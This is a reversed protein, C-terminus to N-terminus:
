SYGAAYRGYIPHRRAALNILLSLLQGYSLGAAQAALVLSSDLSLDPNHNVDVVYFVGERFRVDLRVYDRCNAARYTSCALAQLQQYEQATLRAPVIMKIQKALPNDKEFKSEYTRIRALTDEIASFDIEAIPLLHLTENGILTVTLERGRIFEEVLAPQDFRRTVSEIQETLREPTSVVAQRDIGLSGHERVPKVIAPFCHWGNTSLTDYIAWSPLPIGQKTLLVKIDRKDATLANSDAGTFTYGHQELTAAVLAESGRLGPIEECWNFVIYRTPDFPTLLSELDPRTVIAVRVPHGIHELEAAALDALARAQRIDEESWVPDINYLLVVPLDTRLSELHISPITNM